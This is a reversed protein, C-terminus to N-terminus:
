PESMAQYKEETEFHNLVESAMKDAFWSLVESKEEYPLPQDLLNFKDKLVDPLTSPNFPKETEKSLNNISKLLDKGQQDRVLEDSMTGYKKDFYNDVDNPNTKEFHRM